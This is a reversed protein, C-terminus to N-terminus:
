RPWVRHVSGPRRLLLPGCLRPSQARWRDNWWLPFAQAVARPPHHRLLGLPAGGLCGPRVAPLTTSQWSLSEAPVAAPWPRLPFRNPETPVCRVAGRLEIRRGHGKLDATGGRTWTLTRCQPNGTAVTLPRTCAEGDNAASLASSRRTPFNARVSVTTVVLAPVSACTPSLMAPCHAARGLSQQISFPACPM